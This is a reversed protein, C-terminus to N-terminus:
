YKFYSQVHELLSKDIYKTLDTGKENIKNQHISLSQQQHYLFNNKMDNYRIEDYELNYIEKLSKLMNLTFLYDYTFYSKNGNFSEYVKILKYYKNFEKIPEKNEKIADFPNRLLLLLNDTSKIESLEIEHRKIVIPENSLNVNLFNNNRESMSFPQHGHTPLKTLYEICYRVWGNGSHNYSILWNM